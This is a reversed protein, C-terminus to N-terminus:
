GGSLACGPAERCIGRCVWRATGRGATPGAASFSSFATKLSGVSAGCRGSAKKKRGQPVCHCVAFRLPACRFLLGWLWCFSLGKLWRRRGNYLIHVTYTCYKYAESAYVYQVYVTCISYLPCLPHQFDPTQPRGFVRGTRGNGGPMPVSFMVRPLGSAALCKHCFSAFEAAFTAVTVFFHTYKCKARRPLASM